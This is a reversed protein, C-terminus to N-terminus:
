YTRRRRNNEYLSELLSRNESSSRDNKSSLPKITVRERGGPNDGVIIKQPGNTIFDGGQAYAPTKGGWRMQRSFDKSFAPPNTEYEGWATKQQEKFGTRYDQLLQAQEDRRIDIDLKGRAVDHAEWGALETEMKQRSVAVDAGAQIKAYDPETSPGKLTGGGKGFEYSQDIPMQQTFVPISETPTIGYERIDQLTPQDGRYYPEPRSVRMRQEGLPDVGGIHEEPVSPMQQYSESYSKTPDHHRIKQTGPATRGLYQQRQEDSLIASTDSGLFSGAKRVQEMDYTKYKRGKGIQVEGEPGKFYGKQGFKPREFDEGGLEKYGAEYEGWATEAKKAQGAGFAAVTGLTSLVGTVVDTTKKRKIIGRRAKGLAARASAM